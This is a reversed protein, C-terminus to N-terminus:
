ASKNISGDPMHENFTLAIPEGFNEFWTNLFRDYPIPPLTLWYFKQALTLSQLLFYLFTM